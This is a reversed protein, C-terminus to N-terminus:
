HGLGDTADPESTRNEGRKTYEGFNVRFYEHKRLVRRSKHIERKRVSSADQM